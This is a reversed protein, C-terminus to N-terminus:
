RKETGYQATVYKVTSVMIALSLARLKTSLFFKRSPSLNSFEFFPPVTSTSYTMNNSGM